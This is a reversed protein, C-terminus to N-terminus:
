GQFILNQCLRPYIMVAFDLINWSRKLRKVCVTHSGNDEKCTNCKGDRLFGTMPAEGCTELPEGFVNISQDIKM